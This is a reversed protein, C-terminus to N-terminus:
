YIHRLRLRPSVVLALAQLTAPWSPLKPTVDCAGSLAYLTFSHVRVNGLSGGNHSNSDWNSERIKLACNCSAFGMPEFLKKM